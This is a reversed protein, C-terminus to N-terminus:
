HTLQFCTLKFTFFFSASFSGALQELHKKRKTVKSAEIAGLDWRIVVLGFLSPFKWAKCLLKNVTSM